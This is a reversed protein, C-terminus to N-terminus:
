DQRAASSRAASRRESDDAEDEAKRKKRGVTDEPSEDPNVVPLNTQSQAYDVCERDCPPEWGYGILETGVEVEMLRRADDRTLGFCGKDHKQKKGIARIILDGGGDTEDPGVNYILEIFPYGRDDLTKLVAIGHGFRQRKNMDDEDAEGHYEDDEPVESWQVEDMDWYNATEGEDRVLPGFTGIKDFLRFSGSIKKPADNDQPQVPDVNLKLYNYGDGNQTDFGNETDTYEDYVICYLGCLSKLNILDTNLL